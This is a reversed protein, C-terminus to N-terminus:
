VSTSITMYVYPMIVLLHVKKKEEKKKEKKKKESLSPKGICDAEM